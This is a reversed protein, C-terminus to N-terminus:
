SPSCRSQLCPTTPEIGDDEVLLEFTLRATKTDSKPKTKELDSNKREKVIQFFYLKILCHLADFPTNSQKPYFYIQQILVLLVATSKFSHRERNDAPALTIPVLSYTCM